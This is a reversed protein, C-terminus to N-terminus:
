ARHRGTAGPSLPPASLTLILENVPAERAIHSARFAAPLAQELANVALFLDPASIKGTLHILEDQGDTDWEAAADALGISGALAQTLADKSVGFGPTPRVVLSLDFQPV